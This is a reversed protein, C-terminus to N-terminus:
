IIIGHQSILFEKKESDNLNNFATRTLTPNDAMAKQRNKIKDKAAPYCYNGPSFEAARRQSVLWDLAKEVRGIDQNPNKAVAKIIELRSLPKNTTHQLLNDIYGASLMLAQDEVPNEITETM